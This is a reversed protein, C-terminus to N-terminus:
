KAIWTFEIHSERQSFTIELCQNKVSLGFGPHWDSQSLLAQHESLDATMEFYKGVVRLMGNTLTVALDPHLYFRAIAQTFDGDLADSVQLSSKGLQVNRQHVPGGYIKRYGNHSASLVAKDDVVKASAQTIRARQAVRFSSWVQSSDLGDVKVTIPSLTKREKLRQEGLGCQSTGANVFVRENGISLEFAM